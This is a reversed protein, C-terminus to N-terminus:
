VPCTHTYRLRSRAGARISLLMTLRIWRYIREAYAWDTIRYSDGKTLVTYGHKCSALNALEKASINPGTEARLM